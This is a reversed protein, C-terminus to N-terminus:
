AGPDVTRAGRPRYPRWRTAARRQDLHDPVAPLADRHAAEADALRRAAALSAAKSLLATQQFAAVTARLESGKHAFGASLGRGTPLDPFGTVTSALEGATLAA